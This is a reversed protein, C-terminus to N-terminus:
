NRVLVASWTGTAGAMTSGCEGTCTWNGAAHTSDSFVGTLSVAATSDITGAAVLEAPNHYVMAMSLSDGNLLATFPGNIPSTGGSVHSDAFYVCTEQGGETGTTGTTDFTLTLQESCVADAFVFGGGTSDAPSSAAVLSAAPAVGIGVLASHIKVTHPPPPPTVPGTPSSSGGGCAVLGLILVALIRNM